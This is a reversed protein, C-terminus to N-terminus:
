LLPLNFKVAMEILDSNSANKRLHEEIRRRIKRLNLPTEVTYITWEGLTDASGETLEAIETIQGTLRRFNEEKCGTEWGYQDRVTIDIIDGAKLNAFNVINGKQDYGYDFGIVTQGMAM